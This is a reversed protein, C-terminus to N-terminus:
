DLDPTICLITDDANLEFTADPITIIFPLHTDTSSIRKIALPMLGTRSYLEEFLQRTTRTNDNKLFKYEVIRRDETLLLRISTFSDPYFAFLSPLHDMFDEMFLYGAAFSSSMYYTEQQNYSHPHYIPYIQSVSMTKQTYAMYNIPFCSMYENFADSNKDLDDNKIYKQQQIQRLSMLCLAIRKDYTSALASDTSVPPPSSKEEEWSTYPFILVRDVSTGYVQQLAKPDTISGQYQTISGKPYEHSYHNFQDSPILTPALIIINPPIVNPTGKKLNYLYNDFNQMCGCILITNPRIAHVNIPTLPIDSTYNLDNLEIEGPSRGILGRGGLSSLGRHIYRNVTVSDRHSKGKTKGFSPKTNGSSFSSTNTIPLSASQIYEHENKKKKENDKPNIDKEIDIVTNNNNNGFISDLGRRKEKPVEGVTKISRYHSPLVFDSVFPSSTNVNGVTNETDENEIRNGRSNVTNNLTDVQKLMNNSFVETISPRTNVKSQSRHSTFPQSSHYSSTSSQNMRSLGNISNSLPNPSAHYPTESLSTSPFPSHAHSPSFLSNSNNRDNMNNNNHTDNQILSRSSRNFLSFSFPKFKSKNNSRENVSQTYHLKPSLFSPNRIDEYSQSNIVHNVNSPVSYMKKIPSPFLPHTPSYDAQPHHSSIYLHDEDNMIDSVYDKPQVKNIINSYGNPLIHDGEVNRYILENGVESGDSTLVIIGSNSSSSRNVSINTQSKSSHINKNNDLLQVQDIQPSEIISNVYHPSTPSPPAEKMSIDEHSSITITTTPTSTNITNSPTVISIPLSSQAITNEKNSHEIPSPTDNYRNMSSSITSPTVITSNNISYSNTSMSQQTQPISSPQPFSPVSSKPISISHSEVLSSSSIITENSNFHITKVPTPISPSPTFQNMLSHQPSLPSLLFVESSYSNNDNSHPSDHIINSNEHISSIPILSSNIESASFSDSCGSADINMGVTTETNSEERQEKISSPITLPSTPLIANNNLTQIDNVNSENLLITDSNSELSKTDKSNSIHKTTEKSHITSSSPSVHSHIGSHNIVPFADNDDNDDNDDDNDDDGDDNDNNDDDDNDDDNDDNDNNDNNDKNNDDINDKDDYLTHQKRYKDKKLEDEEEETNAEEIGEELILHDNKIHKDKNILLSNYEDSSSISNEALPSIHSNSTHSTLKGHSYVEKNTNSEHLVDRNKDYPISSPIPTLPSSPTIPSLPSSPTSPTVPTSSSPSLINNNIHHHHHSNSHISNGHTLLQGKDDVINGTPIHQHSSSNDLPITSLPNSSSTSKLQQISSSSQTNQIMESKTTTDHNYLKNDSRKTSMTYQKKKNNADEDEEEDIEEVVTQDNTDNNIYDEQVTNFLGYLPPLLFSSPPTALDNAMKYEGYALSDDEKLCNFADEAQKREAAFLYLTDGNRIFTKAPNIRMECFPKQLAFVYLGKELYIKLAASGYMVEFSLDKVLIDYLTYELRDGYLASWDSYSTVNRLFDSTTSNLTSVNSIEQKGYKINMFNTREIKTAKKSAEGPRLLFLNHLLVTTGPVLTELSIWSNKFGPLSAIHLPIITYPIRYLFTVLPCHVDPKHTATIAFKQIQQSLEKYRKKSVGKLNKQGEVFISHYMNWANNISSMALLTENDREIGGKLPDPFWIIKEAHLFQVRVLDNHNFISGKLITCRFAYRKKWLKSHKFEDMSLTNSLVVVMFPDSEYDAKFMVNITKYIDEYTAYGCIIVTQADSKNVLMGKNQKKKTKVYCLYLQYCRAPIFYVLFVIQIIHVIKGWTTRMIIDGDGITLLNTVIFYIADLPQMVQGYIHYYEDEEVAMYVASFFFILIISQMATYGMLEWFDNDTPLLSRIRFMRM